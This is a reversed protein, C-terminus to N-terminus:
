DGSSSRLAWASGPTVNAAALQEAFGDGALWAAERGRAFAIADDTSAKAPAAHCPHCFLLGGEAPAAALWAAVLPGYAAAFGYAGLLVRNHRLGRAVLERELARGGSAEIVRGKLGAGPGVVHGTNRLAPMRKWRAVGAIVVERVGPLHHVHQHGDVFDPERGIARCFADVQAQWEAAIAAAPLRHLHAIVLLKALGPLVPWHAALDPSLPTGETLNFHLGLEVGAIRKAESPWLVGTTVCSAATLRGAAGLATATDAAGAVLGIDDACIALVRPTEAAPSEATGASMVSVVSAVM